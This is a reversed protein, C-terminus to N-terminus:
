IPPKAAAARVKLWEGALENPITFSMVYHEIWWEGACQVLVGSGRVEGYKENHLLEDFWASRADPALRVSRATPTYTWGQGRTFYPACFARFEERSWRESADTGLFVGSSSFHQFYGELDCKSAAHHFADLVAEVQSAGENESARPAACGAGFAAFVAAVVGFRRSLASM